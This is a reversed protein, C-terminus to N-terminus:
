DGTLSGWGFTREAEVPRRGQSKAVVQVETPEFDEPLSLIGEVEQFYRFRFRVGLDEIDDSIERLPIVEHEGNRQGIINIAVLGSIYNRNDGLQTLVLKFGHRREGRASLLEFRQVQLGTSVDAPAMINKYFTVDAKLASIESELETITRRAEGFAQEDITKGRELSIVRQQLEAQRTRLTSVERQLQQRTELADSSRLHGENMGLYYGLLAAGASFGLLILFRRLRYGPRHRVIVYEERQHKVAM